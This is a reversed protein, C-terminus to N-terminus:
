GNIPGSGERLHGAGRGAKFAQFEALIALATEAPTTAGLDLGVPGYLNALRTSDYGLEELRARRIAQTHRSGLSGVYGPTPRSLFADIVPTALDHDHSLVILADVAGLGRVAERLVEADSSVTSDWGLVRSMAIIAEALAGEGAVVVSTPPVRVDLHFASGGEDVITSTSRRRRLLDSATRFVGEPVEGALESITTESWASTGKALDDLETVLLYPVREALLAGLDRPFSESPQYIVRAVGGCAMGSRVAEEDGVELNIVTADTMGERLRALAVEGVRSTPIGGLITGLAGDKGAVIMEGVRVAGGFGKLEVVRAVVAQDDGRSLREGLVEIPSQTTM